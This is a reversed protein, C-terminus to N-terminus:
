QKRLAASRYENGNEALIRERETKVVNRIRIIQEKTYGLKALTFEPSEENKQDSQGVHASNEM